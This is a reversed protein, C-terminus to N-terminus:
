PTRRDNTNTAAYRLTRAANRIAQQKTFGVGIRVGNAPDGDYVYWRDFVSLRVPYRYRSWGLAANMAAQWTPHRTDPWIEGPLFVVWEIGEPEWPAIAQEVRPKM